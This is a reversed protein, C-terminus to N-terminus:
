SSQELCNFHSLYVQFPMLSLQKSQGLIPQEGQERNLAYKRKYEDKPRNELAKFEDKTLKMVHVQRSNVFKRFATEFALYGYKGERPPSDWTAVLCRYTSPLQSLKDPCEGEDYPLDDWKIFAWVVQKIQKTTIKHGTRAEWEAVTETLDDRPQEGEAFASELEEDVQGDTPDDADDEDDSVAVRKKGKGKAKHKKKAQSEKRKAPRWLLVDLVRDFTKWALPIRREADPAARLALALAKSEAKTPDQDMESGIEFPIIAADGNDTVKNAEKDVEMADEDPLAEALLEVKAGDDLFNKLKAGHTTVLWM